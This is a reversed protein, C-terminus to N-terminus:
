SIGGKPAAAASATAFWQTPAIVAVAGDDKPTELRVVAGPGSELSLRLRDAGTAEIVKTLAGVLREVDEETLTLEAVSFQAVLPAPFDDAPWVPLKCHSPGSTVTGTGTIVVEADPPPAAILAALRRASLAVAGAENVTAECAAFHCTDLAHGTIAVDQSEARILMAGLIPIDGGKTAFGRCAFRIADRLNVAVAVLKV